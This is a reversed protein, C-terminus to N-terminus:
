KPERQGYQPFKLQRTSLLGTQYDEKRNSEHIYEARGRAEQRRSLVSSIKKLPVKDLMRRSRLKYM